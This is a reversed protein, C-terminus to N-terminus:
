PKVIESPVPQSELLQEQLERHRFQIAIGGLRLLGAAYAWNIFQTPHSSLEQRHSLIRTAVFYRLWPSSSFVIGGAGLGISASFLLPLGAVSSMCVFITWTGILLILDHALGQTVVDGPRGLAAPQHGIAGLAFISGLGLALALGAAFEHRFGGVIGLIMWAILGGGIGQAFQGGVHRLAITSRLASLDFRSLRVRPSCAQSWTLSAVLICEAVFILDLTRGHVYGYLSIALLPIMFPISHIAAAGYRPMRDGAARWLTALNLDTGSGGKHQQVALHRAFTALWSSVEAWEYHGGNTKPYGSTIAPIFRRLLHEDIDDALLQCLEGPRTDRQHYATLAMYLRLPSGLAAALAGNPAAELRDLIPQWRPQIHEAGVSEPFRRSLYAAVKRPSLPELEIVTADQIISEQGLPAPTGALQRYRESRCTLVFPRVGGSAPYNLAQVTAVARAATGVEPDMEDLGDLVPLIRGQGVLGQAVRVPVGFIEVLQDTIWADLRSAATGSEIQKWDVGPDFTPLSLRVPVRWEAEPSTDRSLLRATLDLLLQNALVTKGSGAEGLIVLRGKALGPLRNTGAYFGVIDALSGSQAGGDSRWTLLEVPWSAQGPQAFGVDAPIGLGSDALFLNQQATEREAAVRAIKRAEDAVRATDAPSWWASGSWQAVAVLITVVLALVSAIEAGRTGRLLLWATGAGLLVLFAVALLVPHRM